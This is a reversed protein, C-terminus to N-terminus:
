RAPNPRQALGAVVDLEANAGSCVVVVPGSDPRLRGSLLAGIGIAGAGELILRHEHLAYAMGAAIEDESVLVIDDVLDRVIPFTTANDTGIGGQLSDALTEFEPLRVPRGAQISAHMVAGQEMSVGILRASPLRSKVAVTTGALLGGGSLPVIVTSAGPQQETIELGCTGQGSVVVPDLISHVLIPGDPHDALAIARDFAEDQSSGGIDLRCGMRELLEIKGAPVNDSLCITADVGLSRAVHAVARGHNGTSATIVGRRRQDPSLGAVKAAAGRIKFSGTPQLNELKLGVPSDVRRGLLEDDRLPTRHAFRDVLPRVAKISAPTIAATGHM